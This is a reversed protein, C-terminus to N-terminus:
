KPAGSSAPCVGRLHFSLVTHHHLLLLLNDVVTGFRPSEVLFVVFLSRSFVERIGKKRAQTGHDSLCFELVGADAEHCGKSELALSLRSKLWAGKWVKQAKM